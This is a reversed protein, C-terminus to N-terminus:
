KVLMMTRTENYLVEGTTGPSRAQLRYYYVGSPLNEATVRVSLYGASEIGDVLTAVEQGLVNYVSLKVSCAVPLAYGIVTEPNFPNPYNQSLGFSGPRGTMVGPALVLFLRASPDRIVVASTQGAPHRAERGDAWREILEIHDIADVLAIEFTMPYSGAQIQVRYEVGQTLGLSGYGSEGNVAAAFRLDFVGAPPVPPIESSRVGNGARVRNMFGLEQTRGAADTLVLRSWSLDAGTEGGTRTLPLVSTPGAIVLSGAQNTKVWYGHGPRLTDAIRYKGGFEYFPTTIIGPPSSTVQGVAVPTSIGGVINWRSSVAVTEELVPVGGIAVMVPADYKLWFGEGTAVTDTGLYGSHYLFARSASGPYISAVAHDAVDCPLSLLNWGANMGYQLASEITFAADSMDATGTSDVATIRVRAAVTQAPPVLWPYKLVTDPLDSVIPHWSTGNDISYELTIRTGEPRSWRIDHTEGSKWYEGGDPCVMKLGPHYFLYGAGTLSDGSWMSMSVTRSDVVASTHCGAGASAGISQWGSGSDATLFLEGGALPGFRFIGATDTLTSDIRSDSVSHLRVMIGGLPLRDAVTLTDGDFDQIITGEIRSPAVLVFTHGGSSDNMAVSCRIRSSTIVAVVGGTGALTGLGQWTIGSDDVVDYTGPDLDPFSFRGAGDTVDSLVVSGDKFLRILRGALPSRDGGTALHADQDTVVVGSISPAQVAGLTEIRRSFKILSSATARNLPRDGQFYFGSGEGASGDGEIGISSQTTAAGYVFGGASADAYAIAITSDAANLVIQFTLTDNEGGAAYRRMKYWEIVFRSGTQRTYIGSGPIAPHNRLDDWVGAILRDPVGASPIPAESYGPLTDAVNFTLWGNTSVRIQTYMTGYLSFAFPLAFPASLFDDSNTGAVFTGSGPGADIWEYPPRPTLTSHSASFMYGGADPVLDTRTEVTSGTRFSWTSSYAGSGSSNKGRVRWYFRTTDQLASISRSSGSVTSDDLVRYVFLSDTAVQIRYSTAGAAANWVFSLDSPQNTAGNAPSSLVPAPPIAPPAYVYKYIGDGQLAFASLTDIVLAGYGAGSLGANRLSWTSGDDYSFQMNQGSYSCTIVFGPADVATAVSWMNQGTFIPSSQWTEGYDTSKVFGGGGGWKTAYAVNPKVPDWAMMPIEGTTTHKQTWTIGGDTSKWIGATNDGVLVINANAPNIEADCWVNFGSTTTLTTWTLGFNTSRYISTGSMVLVTDPHQPKTEIPVGYYSFTGTWTQSWTLGHDTSRMVRDSGSSGKQGVLIVNTDTVSVATATIGSGGSITTLQQWTDGRDYSVWLTQSNPSGYITNPNLPNCALSNGLGGGSVKKVWTQGPAIGGLLAVALLVAYLRKM